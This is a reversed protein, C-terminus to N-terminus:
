WPAAAPALERFGMFGREIYPSAATRERRTTPIVFREHYHALALLRHMGRADEVTLGVAELLGPITRREVREARRFARVALQRLLAM